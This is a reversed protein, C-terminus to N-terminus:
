TETLKFTLLNYKVEFLLIFYLLIYLHSIVNQVFFSFGIKLIVLIHQMM